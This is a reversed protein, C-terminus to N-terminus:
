PKLALLAKAVTATPQASITYSGAPSLGAAAQARYDAYVSNTSAYEGAETWGTGPTGTANVQMTSCHVLLRNAGVTTTQLYTPASVSPEDGSVAAEYGTAGSFAFIQGVVNGSGSFTVTTTGGESGDLDRVFVSIAGFLSYNQALTWGSPTNCTRNTPFGVVLVDYDSASSGAPMPVNLSSALGYLGTGAARFTPGPPPPPAPPGPRVAVTMMVGYTLTWSTFAAPNEVGPAAVAKYAGALSVGMGKNTDIATANSGLLTYGTPAVATADPASSNTAVLALVWANPTVTTIAPCDPNNTAAASVPTADEPSVGDVGRLVIAGAMIASYGEQATFQISTDPTSGMVKRFVRGAFGGSGAQSVIQTYGSTQVSIHTSSTTAGWAYVVDDALPAVPFTITIATATNVASAFTAGSSILSISPMSAPFTLIEFLAAGQNYTTALTTWTATANNTYDAPAIDAFATDFYTTAEEYRKTFGTPQTMTGTPDRDHVLTVIRSCYSSKSFGTLPATSGATNTLSTKLAIASAGRCVYIGVGGYPANTWTPPSSIDGAVLANKTFISYASGSSQVADAVVETWGTGSLDLSGNGFLLIIAQDGAATGAPWVVTGTGTSGSAGASEIIDAGVFSWVAAAAASRLMAVGHWGPMINMQSAGLDGRFAYDHHVHDDAFVM